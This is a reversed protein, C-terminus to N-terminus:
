FVPLGIPANVPFAVYTLMHKYIGVGVTQRRTWDTYAKIINGDLSRYNGM